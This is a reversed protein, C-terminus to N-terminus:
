AERTAATGVTEKNRGTPGCSSSSMLAAPKL